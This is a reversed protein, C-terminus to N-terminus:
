KKLYGKMCKTCLFVRKSEEQTVKINNSCNENSCTLVMTGHLKKLQKENKLIKKSKVSGYM